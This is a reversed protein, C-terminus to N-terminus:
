YPDPGTIQPFAKPPNEKLTVLPIAALDISVSRAMGEIFQRISGLKDFEDEFNLAALGDAALMEEGAIAPGLMDIRKQCYLQAEQFVKEARQSNAPPKPLQRAISSLLIRSALFDFLVLQCKLFSILKGPMIATVDDSNNLSRVARDALYHEMLSHYASKYGFLHNKNELLKSLDTEALLKITEGQYRSFRRLMKQEDESLTYPGNEDITKFIGSTGSLALVKGTVPQAPRPNKQAASAAIRFAEVPYIGEDVVHGKVPLVLNGHVDQPIGEAKALERFLPSGTAQGRDDPDPLFGMARQATEYQALYYMAMGFNMPAYQKQPHQHIVPGDQLADPAGASWVMRKLSWNRGDTSYAEMWECQDLSQLNVNIFGATRARDGSTCRPFNDRLGALLRDERGGTEQGSKGNESIM